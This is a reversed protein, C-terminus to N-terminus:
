RQTREARTARTARRAGAAVCGVDVPKGRVGLADEDLERLRGCGRTRDYVSDAGLRYWQMALAGGAILRLCDDRCSIGHVESSRVCDSGHPCRFLLRGTSDGNKSAFGWLGIGRARRVWADASSRFNQDSSVGVFISCRPRAGSSDRIM